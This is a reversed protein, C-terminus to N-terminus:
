WANGHALFRFRMGWSIRERGTAAKCPRALSFLNPAAAEDPASDKADNDAEGEGKVAERRDEAVEIALPLHHLAFPEARSRERDLDLRDLM